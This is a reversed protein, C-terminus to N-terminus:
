ANAYVVQHIAQASIGRSAMLRASKPVALPDSVGWDCASNVIIRESGYHSVIDALRENGMKTSPYITFACWYGRKLVEAV